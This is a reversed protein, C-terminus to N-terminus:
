FAHKELKNSFFFPTQNLFIHDQSVRCYFNSVKPSEATNAADAKLEAETPEANGLIRIRAENYEAQRQFDYCHHM